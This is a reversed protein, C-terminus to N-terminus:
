DFHLAHFPLTDKCLPGLQGQFFNTCLNEPFSKKLLRTAGCNFLACSSVSHKNLISPSKDTVPDQM